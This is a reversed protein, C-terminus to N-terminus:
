TSIPILMMLELSNMSRIMNNYNVGLRETVWAAARAVVGAGAARGARNGM